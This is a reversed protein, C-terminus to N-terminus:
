ASMDEWEARAARMCSMCAGPRSAPRQYTPPATRSRASTAVSSPPSCPPSSPPILSGPSLSHSPSDPDHSHTPEVTRSSLAPLYTPSPTPPPTPYSQPLLIPQPRQISILHCRNSIRLLLPTSPASLETRSTHGASHKNNAYMGPTQCISTFICLVRPEHVFTALIFIVASTPPTPSFSCLLLHM